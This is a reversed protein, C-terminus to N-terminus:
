RLMWNSWFKVRSGNPACKWKVRGIQYKQARPMSVCTGQIVKRIVTTMVTAQKNKAKPRQVLGAIMTIMRHM